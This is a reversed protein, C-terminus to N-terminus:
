PDPSSYGTCVGPDMRKPSYYKAQHVSKYLPRSEDRISGVIDALSLPTSQPPPASM